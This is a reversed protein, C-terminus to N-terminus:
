PKGANRYDTLTKRIYRPLPSMLPDNDYEDLAEAMKEAAQLKAITAAEMEWLNDPKYCKALDHVFEICDETKTSM